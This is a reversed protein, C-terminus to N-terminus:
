GAGEVRNSLCGIGEIEVTIVDGARLFVAPERTCGVGAPTGTFIVSGPYLTMCRSVYSVLEECSFVMDSTNSEQMVQGNLTSRIDCRSPDLETEIWPGLPGFTDFCKARAWQRDLRMQCDRASVDNGCTYGLVYDRAEAVSVEKAQKGIVVVLEAEYDVEAPAMEPLVIAEDPGIVTNATKIFVLPAKPVEKGGERAHEGYNLGIAVIQRPEVPPLLRVESLSWQEGTRQCGGFPEGAIPEVVAGEVVAWCRREDRQVCAIKM